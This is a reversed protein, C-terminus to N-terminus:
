CDIAAYQHGILYVLCSYAHWRRRIWLLLRAAHEKSYTKATCASSICNHHLSISNRSNCSVCGSQWGAPLPHKTHAAMKLHFNAAQTIVAAQTGAVPIRVVYMHHRAAMIEGEQATATSKALVLGLALIIFFANCVANEPLADRDDAATQENCASRWPGWAWYSETM